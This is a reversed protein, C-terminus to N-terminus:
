KVKVGVNMFPTENTVLNLGFWVEGHTFGFLKALSKPSAINAWRQGDPSLQFRKQSLLFYTDHTFAFTYESKELTGMPLDMALKFPMREGKAVKFIVPEGKSIRQQVDELRSPDQIGQPVSIVEFKTSDLRHVTTCGAAFLLVTIVLLSKKM